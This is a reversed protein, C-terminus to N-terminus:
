AVPPRLSLPHRPAADDLQRRLRESETRAERLEAELRRAARRWRRQKLWAAIGGILVGAILLIFALVFLPSRLAFAPDAPNFPDLSLTVVARNAVALAVVVVAIPILIAALIVKRIVRAPEKV